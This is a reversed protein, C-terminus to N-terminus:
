AVRRCTASRFPACGANRDSADIGTNGTVFIRDAGVGERRLNEAAAETPAFHLTSLRAILVRNMEEPFPRAFDNTRLAAAIHGVPIGRYFGGLAGCFTSTTDGQVLMLDPDEKVLVPELATVIRSTSDFLSQGPRMIDLHYDPSMSFTDLANDLLDRHQGTVVQRTEFAQPYERFRRFVPGLKIAEPRTGL